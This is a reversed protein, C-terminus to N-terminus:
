GLYKLLGALSLSYKWYVCFISLKISVHRVYSTQSENEMHKYQSMFYFTFTFIKLTHTHARACAHTHTHTLHPSRIRSQIWKQMICKCMCLASPIRAGEWRQGITKLKMCNENSFPLCLLNAGWRQTPVGQSIRSGGSNHKTHLYNQM